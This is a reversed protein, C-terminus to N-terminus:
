AQEPFFDVMYHFGILYNYKHIYKSYHYSCWHRSRWHNPSHSVDITSLPPFSYIPTICIYDYLLCALLLGAHYSNPRGPGLYVLAFRKWYKLLFVSHTNCAGGMFACPSTSLGSWHDLSHADELANMPPACLDQYFFWCRWLDVPLKASAMLSHVDRETM